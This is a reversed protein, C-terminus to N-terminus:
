PKALRHRVERGRRGSATTAGSYGRRAQGSRVLCPWPVDHWARPGGPVRVWFGGSLLRIDRDLQALPGSGRCSDFRCGERYCRTASGIAGCPFSTTDRARVMAQRVMDQRVVGHWSWSSGRRARILRASSPCSDFRRLRRESRRHGALLGGDLTYNYGKGPGDQARRASGPRVCGHRSLVPNRSLRVAPAARRRAGVQIRVLSTETLLPLSQGM